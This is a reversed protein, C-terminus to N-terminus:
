NTLIPQLSASAKETVVKEPKTKEPVEEVQNETDPEETLNFKKDSLGFLEERSMQYPEKITGNMVDRSLVANRPMGADEEIELPDVIGVTVFIVIEKQLKQRSKWGFVRPGVWPINRLFPIGSDRNSDETRSLGGIVATRGSQMTFVTQIRKMDIIPFRSTPMDETLGPVEYYGYLESISPEITVTILGKSSIRPKVNLTIGYSFFAEGVFPEEEGPIIGLSTSVSDRQGEATAAQYDVVVNPEKRTMDIKAKQENAVIVKPNSFVKVGDVSEFASVALRFDDVTMMGGVAKVNRWTMDDSSTGALSSGTLESPYLVTESNMAKTNDVPDVERTNIGTPFTAIESDNFALGGKIDKTSAGWSALSDWKLGLQKSAEATMEVFRAEIYVQQTPADIASIIMECENIEKEPATVIIANSSPFPTAKGKDGLVEQFLEGVEAVAANDLVFTKTIQPIIITITEVIFIGSGVPKEMLQLGQPDLISSLGKKWPVNDLRVSVIAEMNTGSSIINAGTADRFARIVDSIPTEDFSMSVVADNTDDKSIVVVANNDDKETSTTQEQSQAFLTLAIISASLTCLKKLSNM